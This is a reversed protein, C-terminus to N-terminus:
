GKYTTPHANGPHCEMSTLLFENTHCRQVISKPLQQSIRGANMDKIRNPNIGYKITDRVKNKTYNKIPM